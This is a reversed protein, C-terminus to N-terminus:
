HGPPNFVHGCKLCTLVVKTAGFFGTWASWGRQGAHVQDSRCKPCRVNDESKSTEDTM